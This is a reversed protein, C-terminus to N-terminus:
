SRVKDGEMFMAVEKEIKKIARISLWTFERKPVGRGEDHAASYEVENFWQIGNPIIRLNSGSKVPKWGKRLDGSDKLQKANPRGLAAQRRIYRDSWKPWSIGGSGGFSKSQTGLPANDFHHMLDQFVNTSLLMNFDKERGKIAKLNKGIRKLLKNVEKNDFTVLTEAM